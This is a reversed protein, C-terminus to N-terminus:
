DAMPPAGAPMGEMVAQEPEREDDKEDLEAEYKQSDLLEVGAEVWMEVSDTKHPLALDTLDAGTYLGTVFDKIAAALAQGRKVVSEYDDTKKIPKVGDMGLDNTAWRAIQNYRARAADLDHGTGGPAEVEVVVTEEDLIEGTDSEVTQEVTLLRNQPAALALREAAQLQRDVWAQAPEIFVLWKERRARAGNAGSPTSIAVPRRSLLFPIGQLNGGGLTQYYTLARHINIIDHISTTQMTVLGFRSARSVLAPIIISLRGVQKCNGPCKETTPVLEGDRNYQYVYEGDCRHRLQSATWEERWAEFNEDASPFPLYVTINNPEQGYEEQFARILETEKPDIPDLRFHNLDKGPVNGRKEEGKRLVAIRTPRPPGDTMGRIPM